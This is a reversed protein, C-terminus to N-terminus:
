VEPPSLLKRFEGNMRARRQMEAVSRVVPLTRHLHGLLWQQRQSEQQMGLLEHEQDLNLSVLHGLEFTSRYHGELPSPKDVQMLTWLETVLGLIEAWVEVNGDAINEIPRVLGGPYLKGVMEPYYDLVRLANLGEVVIDMRGDEYRQVVKSLGIATGTDQVKGGIVPAICFVGGSAELDAMLQRYRPEFIHLRAQEGPFIVLQLPFFPLRRQDQAPDASM